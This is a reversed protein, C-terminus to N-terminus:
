PNRAPSGAATEFGQRFARRASEGNRGYLIALLILIAGLVGLVIQKRPTM